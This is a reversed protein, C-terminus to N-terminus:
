TRSIAVVISESMKVLIMSMFCLNCSDSSFVAIKCSNCTCRFTQFTTSLHNAVVRATMRGIDAVVMVHAFVVNAHVVKLVPALVHVSEV